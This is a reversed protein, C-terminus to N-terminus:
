RGGSTAIWIQEYRATHEHWPRFRSLEYENTILWILAEEAFPAKANSEALALIKAAWKEPPPYKDQVAKARDEPTKAERFAKTYREFADNYEKLLAQYQQEPPTQEQGDALKLIGLALVLIGGAIRSMVCGWTLPLLSVTARTDNAVSLGAGAAPCADRRQH